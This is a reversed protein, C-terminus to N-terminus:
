RDGTYDEYAWFLQLGIQRESGDPDMLGTAQLPDPPALDGM